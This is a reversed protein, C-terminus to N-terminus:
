WEGENQDLMENSGCLVGEPLIDIVSVEPSMYDEIAINIDKMEMQAMKSYKQLFVKLLRDSLYFLNFFDKHVVFLDKLSNKTVKKKKKFEKGAV